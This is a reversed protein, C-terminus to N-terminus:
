ARAQVKDEDACAVGPHEGFLERASFHSDNVALDESERRQAGIGVVHLEAGGADQVLGTYRHRHDIIKATHVSGVLAVKGVHRCM